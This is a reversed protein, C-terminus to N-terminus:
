WLGEIHAAQARIYAEHESNYMSARKVLPLHTMYLVKGATEADVAINVLGENDDYVKVVWHDLWPFHDVRDYKANVAYQRDLGALNLISFEDPIVREM